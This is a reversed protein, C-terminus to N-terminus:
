RIEDPQYLRYLSAAHKLESAYDIKDFWNKILRIAMAMLNFKSIDCVCCYDNFISVFNLSNM